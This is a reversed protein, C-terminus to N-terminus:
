RSSLQGRNAWLAVAALVGLVLAPFIPTPLVTLHAISAGIMTCVLLGAAVAQFGPVWLLIASGVEIIGTVYRFWQGIGVHDFTEVMMPVGTLKAIGAAAFALTLLGRVGLLAYRSASSNM